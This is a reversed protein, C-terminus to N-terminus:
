AGAEKLTGMIKVLFAMHETSFPMQPATAPDALADRVMNRMRAAVNQDGSTIADGHAKWRRGLDLAEPSGPDGAAALKKLEDVMGLFIAIEREQDFDERSAFAEIEESRFYKHQHPVLAPHFYTQRTLKSTMSTEKTLNALDDISLAQGAKLKARAARVLDLARSLQESDRALVQEQMALVPELTDPGALIQAIKALPLGLGKLALIQHLRVIQDPGYTRWGAESRLPQLLGRHEYLRLAKVSVGFRRATESPSLHPGPHM